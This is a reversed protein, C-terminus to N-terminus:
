QKQLEKYRQLVLIEDGYGVAGLIASASPSQADLRPYQRSAAELHNAIKEITPLQLKAQGQQVPSKLLAMGDAGIRSLDLKSEPQASSMINPSSFSRWQLLLAMALLLMFMANVQPVSKFRVRPMKSDTLPNKQNVTLNDSLCTRALALPDSSPDIQLAASSFPKAMRLAAAAVLVFVFVATPIGDQQESVASWYAILAALLSLQIVLSVRQLRYKSQISNALSNM